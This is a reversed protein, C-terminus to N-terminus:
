VDLQEHARTTGSELCSDKGYHRMSYSGPCKSCETGFDPEVVVVFGGSESEMPRDSLCESRRQGMRERLLVPMEKSSRRTKGGNEALPWRPIRLVLPCFIRRKPDRHELGRVIRYLCGTKFPLPRIKTRCPLDGGAPEARDMGLLVSM